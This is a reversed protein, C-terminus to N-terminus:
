NALGLAAGSGPAPRPRRRTIWVGVLLRRQQAGLLRELLRESVPDLHARRALANPSLKSLM